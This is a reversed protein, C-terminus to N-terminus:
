DIDIHEKVFTTFLSVHEEKVREFAPMDNVYLDDDSAHKRIVKEYARRTEPLGDFGTFEPDVMLLKFADASTKDIRYVFWFDQMFPKDSDDEVM